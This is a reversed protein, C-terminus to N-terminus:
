NRETMPRIADMMPTASAPKRREILRLRTPPSTADAPCSIYLMELATVDNENISLCTPCVSCVGLEMCEGSASCAALCIVSLHRCIKSSISYMSLLTRVLFASSVKPGVVSCLNLHHKLFCLIVYRKACSSDSFNLRETISCIM